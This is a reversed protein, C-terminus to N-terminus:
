HVVLQVVQSLLAVVQDLPHILQALSVFGVYACHVSLALVNATLVLVLDLVQHGLQQNLNKLLVDLAFPFHSEKLDAVSRLLHVVELATKGLQLSRHLVIHAIPLAVEDSQPVALSEVAHLFDMLPVHQKLLVHPQLSLLLEKVNPPLGEQLVVHIAESPGLRLPHESQHHVLSERVLGSVGQALPAVIYFQTM